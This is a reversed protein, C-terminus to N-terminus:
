LLKLHSSYWTMMRIREALHEARHYAARVEDTEGHSLQREIADRSFKGSENLIGSAISRFGHGTMRGRYGLRYLAFLLTNNSIPVLPNRASALWFHSEGTMPELEKLLARVPKSIPVVHPLKRKMREGPIVWVDGKIETWRAGILESTRVFTHALLLLGIRTVPEPYGRIAKLLEPLEAPHLAPVNKTPKRPLVRSLGAAPHSDIDGCDVCHDLIARIRQGLRHAVETRGKAAVKSVVAVLDTRTLDQIIRDGIEPLVYAKLPNEYNAQNDPDLQPLKLKLFREMAYAFTIRGKATDQQAAWAKAQSQTRFTKSRRKGRGKGVGGGVYLYARWGNRYPVISAM